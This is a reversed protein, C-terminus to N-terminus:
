DLLLDDWWQLLLLVLEGLVFLLRLPVFIVERRRESVGNALPELDQLKLARGLAVVAAATQHDLSVNDEDIHADGLIVLM